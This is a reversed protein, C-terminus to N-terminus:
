QRTRRCRKEISSLVYDTVTIKRVYLNAKITQVKYHKVTDESIVIFNHPSRRLSLETTVGSPLHQNGFLKLKNSAAVLSKHETVDEARRRNGDNASPIEEYYYGQCALWALKADNVYSFITEFFDKNAFNANTIKEVNLSM